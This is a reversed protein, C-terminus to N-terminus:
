CAPLNDLNDVKTGDPNTTIYPTASCRPCKAMPHITAEVIGSQTKWSNGAGLSDVVEQRTYHLGANTCVGEIHLHLGDGCAEKRVQTVVYTSM